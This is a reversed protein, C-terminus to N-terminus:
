PRVIRLYAEELSESDARLEILGFGAGVVASSVRAALDSGDKTGADGRVIVRDPRAEASSVGPLRRLLQAAQETDGTLRVDIRLGPAAATLDAVEKTAVVKGRDIVVVRRCLASVESLLHSSFLVARQRGLKAILRRTEAVQRPDLGATPEDLVLVAPDHVLSQALGVRQRYGKSLTGIVQEAVDGLGGQDLAADIAARRQSRAVGRLRTCYSLYSRVTLERPVGAAEPLYGILSRAAVPDAVTDIDGVTVSGSDPRLYGTIVRMTTTKGAGNPGLLGLVEGPRLDFTVRDLAQIRGFRRCVSEVRVPVGRTV